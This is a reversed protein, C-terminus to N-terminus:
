QSKSLFMGTSDDSSHSIHCRLIITLKQENNLFLVQRLYIIPQCAIYVSEHTLVRRPVHMPFIVEVVVVVTM